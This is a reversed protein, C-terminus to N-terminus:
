EHVEKKPSGLLHKYAIAWFIASYIIFFVMGAYTHFLSFAIEPNIYYGAMILAFVRIINLGFLLLLAFPFVIFYQRKHILKWDLLGVIAYLSTFLAISEVGSCFEAITIGFKDFMLTHPPLITAMLGTAGLLGNVCYLVISALPEWLSYVVNLFVYFCVTLSMAAMLERKYSVALLQMNKPGFCGIVALVLSGLLGLHAGALTIASRQGALLGDISMWALMFIGLSAAFWGLLSLKWPYLVIESKNHRVLLIFAILGFILAKGIGGYYSFGDRFMIDSGIIKPGAVGTILLFFCLFVIGRRLLPTITKLLHMM